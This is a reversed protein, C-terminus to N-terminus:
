EIEASVQFDGRYTGASRLAIEGGIELRSLIPESEGEPARLAVGNPHDSRTLTECHDGGYLALAVAADEGSESRPNRGIIRLRYSAGPPIRMEIEGCQAASEPDIAFAGRLIERVPIDAGPRCLCRMAMKGHGGGDFRVQMVNGFIAPLVM